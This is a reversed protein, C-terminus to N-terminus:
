VKQTTDAKTKIKRQNNPAVLNDYLTQLDEVSGFTTAYANYVFEKSGKIKQTDFGCDINCLMGMMYCFKAADDQDMKGLIIDNAIQLNANPATLDVPTLSRLANSIEEPTATKLFKAVKNGHECYNEWALERANQASIVPVEMGDFGRVIETPKIINNLAYNFNFLAQIPKNNQMDMISSLIADIIKVKKVYYTKLKNSNNKKRANDVAITRDKKLTQIKENFQLMNIHDIYEILTTEIIDETNQVTMSLLFQEEAEFTNNM